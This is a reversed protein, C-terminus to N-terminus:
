ERATAAASFSYSHLSAAAPINPAVYIPRVNLQSAQYELATRMTKHETDYPLSAYLESIVLFLDDDSVVRHVM